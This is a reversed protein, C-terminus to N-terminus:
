APLPQLHTRASESWGCTNCYTVLVNVPPGGLLSQEVYEIVDLGSDGCVPCREM